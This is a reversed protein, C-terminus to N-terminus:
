LTWKTAVEGSGFYINGNFQFLNGVISSYNGILTKAGSSLNFSELQGAVFTYLLGSKVVANSTKVFSNDLAVTSIFTLTNTLPTYALKSVTYDNADVNMNNTIYINGTEAYLYPSFDSANAFSTGSIAVAFSVSLDTLDFHRFFYDNTSPKFCFCLAYGNLVVIDTVLITGDAVEIRIINELYDVSPLDSVLSGQNQYYVKNGDNFAIPLGMVTFLENQVATSSTLPYAKVGASDIIVLLEDSANFGSSTFGYETAGTGKFTYPVSGVYTDSAKAIFFYKNPLLDLDFPVSWVTTTLDLIQEVDNLVNPLKKLANLIQYQTLDSDETGTPTEGVVQLLKYINTLIDGYIERVVPTGAETITENKITSQPFETSSDQPIALQKITRM